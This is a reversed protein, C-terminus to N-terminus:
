GELSLPAGLTERPDLALTRRDGRTQRFAVGRARWRQAMEDLGAAALTLSLTEDADSPEIRISGRRLHFPARAGLLKEYEKRRMTVHRTHLRVAGVRLGLGIGESAAPIRTERPTLDQILFPLAPDEWQATRWVALLADERLREGRHLDGIALTRRRIIALDSDLADSELAFTAIRDARKLAGLAARAFAARQALAPDKVAILELYAGDALPVLANHTGLAPHDGGPLVHFGLRRYAGVGEDLREVAILVHDIGVIM